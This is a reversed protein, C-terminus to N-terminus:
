SQYRFDHPAKMSNIANSSNRKQWIRIKRVKEVKQFGSIKCGNVANKKTLNRKDFLFYLSILFFWNLNLGILKNCLKSKM